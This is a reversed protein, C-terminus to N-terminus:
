KLEDILWENFARAVTVSDLGTSCYAKYAFGNSAQLYEAFRSEIENQQV